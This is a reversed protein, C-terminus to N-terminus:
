QENEEKTELGSSLIILLIIPVFDIAIGIAVGKIGIIGVIWLVIVILSLVGGTM